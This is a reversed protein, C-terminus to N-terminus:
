APGLTVEMEAGDSVAGAMSSWRPHRPSSSILWFDPADPTTPALHSTPASTGAVSQQLAPQMTQAHQEMHRMRASARHMALAALKHEHGRGEGQGGM